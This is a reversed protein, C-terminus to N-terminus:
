LPQPDATQKARVSNRTESLERRREESAEQEEREVLTWFIVERASPEMLEQRFNTSVIHIFLTCTHTFFVHVYALVILM